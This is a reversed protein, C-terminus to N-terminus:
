FAVASSVAARMSVTTISLVPVSVLPSGPDGVDDGVADTLHAASGPQRPPSSDSRVRQRRRDHAVGGFPAAAAGNVPKRLTGPWPGGRRHGVAADGDAVGFEHDLVVDIERRRQIARRSSSAEVPRM